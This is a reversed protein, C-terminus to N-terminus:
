YMALLQILVPILIVLTLILINQKPLNDLM